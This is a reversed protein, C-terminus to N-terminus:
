PVNRGLIIEGLTDDEEQWPCLDGFMEDTMRNSGIRGKWDKGDNM